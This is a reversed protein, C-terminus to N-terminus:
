RCPRRPRTPTPRPTATQAPTPTATPDDSTTRLGGHDDVTAPPSANAAVAFGTGGAILAAAVLASAVFKTRKTSLVSMSRGEPTVATAASHSDTADAVEESEHGNRLHPFPPSSLARLRAAPRRSLRRRRARGGGSGGKGSNGNAGGHDDAPVPTPGPVTVTGGPTPTPTASPHIPHDRRGRDGPDRGRVRGAPRSIRDCQRRLGCRRRDRGRRGRNRTRDGLAAVEAGTGHGRGRDHTYQRRREMTGAPARVRPSLQRIERRSRRRSRGNRDLADRARPVSTRVHRGRAPERRGQNFLSIVSSLQGAEGGFSAGPSRTAM